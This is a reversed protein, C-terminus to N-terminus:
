TQDWANNLYKLYSKEKIHKNVLKVYPFKSPHKVKKANHAGYNYCVLWDTNSKHICGKKAAELMELGVYINLMPDRMQKLTFGKKKVINPMIQYLGIEGAGGVVNPNLSSEQIAVAVAVRPDLDFVPALALIIQVIM